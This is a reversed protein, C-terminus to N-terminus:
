SRRRRRRKGGRSRRRRRRSAAAEREQEASPPAHGTGASRRRRRREKAEPKVEPEQARGPVRRDASTVDCVVAEQALQRTASTPEARLSFRGNHRLEEDASSTWTEAPAGAPLEVVEPVSLGHHPFLARQAAGVARRLYSWVYAEMDNGLSNPPPDHFTTGGWRDRYGAPLQADEKVPHGAMHALTLAWLRAASGVDLSHGGVALRRPAFPELRELIALLGRTTLRTHSVPDDAHLSGGVQVLLVDPAFRELLPVAVQEVAWLAHADGAGPPLPLNVALGNGSEHPHGTGPFGFEPGQHLSITLVHPEEQFAAQVTDAHRADINVYAVRWGAERLQLLALVVDNYVGFGRAEAPRVLHYGGAPTFAHASAGSVVADVATLVAAVHHWFFCHMEPFPPVQDHRLGWTSSDLLSVHGNGLARVTAVYEQDHFRLLEAEAWTGIGVCRIGSWAELQGSMEVLRAFRLVQAPRPGHRWGRPFRWLAEDLVLTVRPATHDTAM